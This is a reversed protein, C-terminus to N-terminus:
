SKKKVYMSYKSQPIGKGQTIFEDAKSKLLQSDIDYYNSLKKIQEYDLHTRFVGNELHFLKMEPFNMDKCAVRRTLGFCKRVESLFSPFEYKSEKSVLKGIKERTIEYKNM